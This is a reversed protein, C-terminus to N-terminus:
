VTARCTDDPLLWEMNRMQETEEPTVCTISTIPGALPFGAPLAEPFQMQATVEWRGPRMAFDAALAASVAAALVAAAIVIRPRM